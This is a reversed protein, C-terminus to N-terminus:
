RVFINIVGAIAGVTAFSPGILDRFVNRRRSVLIQDGSRIQLNSATSRPDTLDVAIEGRDRIVRIRDLRGTETPGGALVIAQAITTEPPVSYVNPSRVEGGLIIKVLPQVVFQPTAIYKTLFIRLREEVTAIPVGTVQIERYLPHIISGDSAVFFDGSFEVQRWVAIRVQDGPNLAGGLRVEPEVTQAGVEAVSVIAAM